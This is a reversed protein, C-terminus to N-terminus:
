EEKTENNFETRYPEPLKLVVMTGWAQYGLITHQWSGGILTHDLIVAFHKSQEPKNRNGYTIGYMYKMTLDNKSSIYTYYSCNRFYAITGVAAAYDLYGIGGYYLIAEYDEDSPIQLGEGYIVMGSKDDQYEIIEHEFAKIERVNYIGTNLSLSSMGTKTHTGSGSWGVSCDPVPKLFQHGNVDLYWRYTGLNIDKQDAFTQITGNNWSDENMDTDTITQLTTSEACNVIHREVTYDTFTHHDQYWREIMADPILVDRSIIGSCDKGNFLTYVSVFIEANKSESWMDMSTYDQYSVDHSASGEWWGEPLFPYAISCPDPRPTIFNYAPHARSYTKTGYRDVVSIGKTGLQTHSTVISQCWGANQKDIGGPYDGDMCDFPWNSSTSVVTDDDIYNYDEETFDALEYKDHNIDDIFFLPQLKLDAIVWGGSVVYAVAYYYERKKPIVKGAIASTDISVVNM